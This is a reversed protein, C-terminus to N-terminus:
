TCIQQSTGGLHHSLGLNRSPHNQICDEKRDLECSEGASIRKYIKESYESPMYKM